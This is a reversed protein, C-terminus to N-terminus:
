RAHHESVFVSSIYYTLDVTHTLFIGGLTIQNKKM